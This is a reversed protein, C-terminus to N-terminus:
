YRTKKLIRIYGLKELENIIADVCNKIGQKDTEVTIEPSLPEQYPDDIGTFNKIKGERALKYMGKTDRQECIEISSKVYVEVFDQMMERIKQRTERYPTILAVCVPNGEGLKELAKEAVRLNHTHRDEKSFGLDKSISQRVADGDLITLPISNNLSFEKKLSEALTTKGSCPLGTLWLVFPHQIQLDFNGKLNTLKDIGKKVSAITQSSLIQPISSLNASQLDLPGLSQPVGYYRRNMRVINYKKYSDVLRPVREVSSIERVLIFNMAEELSNFGLYVGKKNRDSSNSLDLYGNEQSIAAFGGSVKVINYGYYSEKVLRQSWLEEDSPHFFKLSRSRFKGIHRPTSTTGIEYGMDKMFDQNLSKFCQYHKDKFIERHSGIKGRWFTPSNENYFKKGTESPAGPIHLKLQISWITRKQEDDDGGGRSGVLEEYSVPIINSFNLWGIYRLMRDRISGFVYKDDIISLLKEDQHELTNLYHSFANIDKEFWKLESIIIDLPNRYMFIGPYRFLPHTGLPDFWENKFFDLCPAHYSYDNLTNWKGVAPVSSFNQEIGWAQLLGLLMHTGSRPITTIFIPRNKYYYETVPALVTGREMNLCSLLMESLRDPDEDELLVVADYQNVRSSLAEGEALIDPLLNEGEFEKTISAEKKHPAFLFKECGGKILECIEEKLGPLSDFFRLNLGSSSGSM